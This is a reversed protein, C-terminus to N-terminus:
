GERESNTIALEMLSKLDTDSVNNPETGYLVEFAVKLAELLEKTTQELKEYGNIRKLIEDADDTFCSFVFFGNADALHIFKAGDDASWTKSAQYPTILERM